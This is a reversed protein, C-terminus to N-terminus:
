WLFEDNGVFDDFDDPESVRELRATNRRKAMGDEIEGPESGECIALQVNSLHCLVVPKCYRKKM